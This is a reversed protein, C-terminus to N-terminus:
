AGGACMAALKMKLEDLVPSASIGEYPDSQVVKHLHAEPWGVLDDDVALWDRPQRLQVDRLVQLGRPMAALSDGLDQMEPSWTAGITRDRLAEPLRQATEIFGFMRVWSTSLVILVEPHPALVEALLQAHQFLSYRAPAGLYLGRDKDWRVNEHHLVGDFDLVLLLEGRGPMVTM